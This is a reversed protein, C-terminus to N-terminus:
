IGGAVRNRFSFSPFVGHQPYLFTKKRKVNEAFGMEEFCVHGAFLAPPRGPPIMESINGFFLAYNIHLKCLIHAVEDVEEDAIDLDYGKVSLLQSFKEETTM